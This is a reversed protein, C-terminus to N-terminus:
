KIANALTSRLGKFGVCILHPRSEPSVLLLERLATQLMNKYGRAFSSARPNIVHSYDNAGVLFFLADPYIGDQYKYSYPKSNTTTRTFLSPM